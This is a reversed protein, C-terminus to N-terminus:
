TNFVSVCTPFNLFFLFLISYFLSIIIDSHADGENAPYFNTEALQTEKISSMDEGQM